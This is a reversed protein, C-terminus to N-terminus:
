KSKELPYGKDRWGRGFDNEIEVLQLRSFGMEKLLAFAPRVNPCHSWPCCGCYIVIPKSRPQSAAWQKLAELGQPDRGPGLFLAGPVHGIDYLVKFAVCIVTPKKPGSLEKVLTEPTILEAPTWPDSGTALNPQTVTVIVGAALLVALAVFFIRKVSPPMSM